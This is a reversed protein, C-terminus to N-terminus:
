FSQGDLTLRERVEPTLRMLLCADSETLGRAQLKKVLREDDCHKRWALFGQAYDLERQHYGLKEEDRAADYATQDARDAEDHNMSSM